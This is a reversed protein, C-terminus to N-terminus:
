FPLIYNGLAAHIKRRLALLGYSFYGAKIIKTPIKYNGFLNGVLQCADYSNNVNFKACDITLMGNMVSSAARGHQTSREDNQQLILENQVKARLRRSLSLGSLVSLGPIKIATPQVIIEQYMNRYMRKYNLMNVGTLNRKKAQCFAEGVCSCISGPIIPFNSDININSESFFKQALENGSEFQSLGNSHQSGGNISFPRLSYLYTKIEHALVIGSYVDPTVCQFFDNTKSKIEDIAAVSVFGSYIVPLRGYSTRGASVEKLLIDGRLEVLDYGCKMSLRNPLRAVSPWTYDPKSWIIAKTGTTMLLEAIDVCANPLLGDDDGLFMVYDGTVLSLGHEWNESMGVRKGTNTYIIRSDNIATVIEKTCDESANDSVIIELNDYTQSTVTKLTHILTDARERTPIVVSLKPCQRSM